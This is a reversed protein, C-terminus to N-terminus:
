PRQRMFEGIGSVLDSIRKDLEVNRERDQERQKEFRTLWEQHRAWERDNRQWAREQEALFVEHETMLKIHSAELKELRTM